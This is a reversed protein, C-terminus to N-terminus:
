SGARAVKDAAVVKWNLDCTVLDRFALMNIDRIKFSYERTKGDPDLRIFSLVENPKLSPSKKASGGGYEIEVKAVEGEKADGLTIRIDNRNASTSTSHKDQLVLVTFGADQARALQDKLDASAQEFSTQLEKSKREVEDRSKVSHAIEDQLNKLHTDLDERNSNQAEEMKKRRAEENQIIRTELGAADVGVQIMKGTETRADDAAKRFYEENKNFSRLLGALNREATSARNEAAAARAELDDLSASLDEWKIFGFFVFLVLGLGLVKATDGILSMAKKYVLFSLRDLETDDLSEKLSVAKREMDTGKRTSGISRPGKTIWPRRSSVSMSQSNAPTLGGASRDFWAGGQPSGVEGM